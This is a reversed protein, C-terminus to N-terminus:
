LLSESYNSTCWLARGKLYPSMQSSEAFNTNIPQFVVLAGWTAHVGIQGLILAKQTGFALAVALVLAGDTGFALAFALALAVAFVAYVEAPVLLVCVFCPCM